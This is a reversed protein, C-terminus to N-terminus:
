RSIGSLKHTIFDQEEPPLLIMLNKICNKLEQLDNRQIAQRGKEININAEAQNTYNRNIETLVEFHYVWGAPNSFFAAWRIESIQENVRSLLHRDNSEIAKEGDIKMKILQETYAPREDKDAFENIIYQANIINANFSKALQPMEKEKELLDLSSRLDKIRKHAKRKEDEDLSANELSSAVAQLNTKLKSEEQKSCIKMVSNARSSESMFEAELKKIDIKEDQFTSRANMTLDILPIYATAKLERSDNLAITLQIETGIPLDQPLDSGKIGLECVFTNRNPIDSEGEGIRIWLPNEDKDKILERVTKFIETKKLPLIEGKRFITEFVERAAFNSQLDKKAVVVGISHPLPAGSISLGHNITFSDPSVPLSTNEHNFLYIWFLNEKNPQLQVSTYFKGKNLQIKDSNYQNDDSQIQVYYTENSDKIGEIIGSLSEDTESTLSEFHLKIKYKENSESSTISKQFETPVKQSLAFVCAGRAVVTLPDVSSDVQINFERYLREKIYPIQTPGGVLIIKEISEKPIKSDKIADKAFAITREVIPEILKELEERSFELASYIEKNSDDNGIGEIEISTKESQTLYIKSMEAIYKLKLFVRRYKENGRNFNEISYKSQIHPIIIKDVILWDIDKGGLFNDGNHSLVTLIGDKSSILAVDFTGGGLDYILWNENKSNMFGHSIAAAIPEQLLVVHQFGALNGARKTAEAQLVSFHAPITIVAADEFIDPYKRLADGKLSKLIESSIEEASLNSNNREFLITEPIGMLRKVEAKNNHIESLSCDKYLREYSKKGVIKSGDKGIGFVSPTYEDGLINKVIEIRGQDYVAIESNTTGLDIGIQINQNSM